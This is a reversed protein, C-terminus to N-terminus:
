LCVAATHTLKPCLRLKLNGKRKPLCPFGNGYPVQLLIADQGRVSGVHIYFSCFVCLSSMIFLTVMSGDSAKTADLM